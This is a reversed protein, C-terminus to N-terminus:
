PCMGDDFYVTNNVAKQLHGQVADLMQIAQRVPLNSLLHRIDVSRVRSLILRDLNTQV